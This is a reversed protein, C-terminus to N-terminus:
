SEKYMYVVTLAVAAEGRGVAGIGDATKAKVSARDLPINLVEAMNQRITEIFSSLRPRELIVTSDASIVRLGSERVLECIRRMIIM